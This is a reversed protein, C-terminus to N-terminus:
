TRVKMTALARAVNALAGEHWGAEGTKMDERIYAVLAGAGAPTTPKIRSFANLARHEAKEIRDRQDALAELQRQFLPTEAEVKNVQEFDRIAANWEKWLRRHDAIAALIPDAPAKGKSRRGKSTQRPSLQVVNPTASM